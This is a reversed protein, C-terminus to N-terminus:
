TWELCKCTSTTCINAHWLHYAKAWEDNFTAVLAALIKQWQLEIEGCLKSNDIEVIFVEHKGKKIVEVHEILMTIGLANDIRKSAEEFVGPRYRGQRRQGEIDVVEITIHFGALQLADIEQASLSTGRAVPWELPPRPPRMVLHPCVNWVHKVDSGCFWAWTDTNHVDWNCKGFFCPEVIGKSQMNVKKKSKGGGPLIGQCMFRSGPKCRRIAWMSDNIEVEIAQKQISPDEEERSQASQAQSSGGFSLKRAKRQRPVNHIVYEPRHSSNAEVEIVNSASKQQKTVTVNDGRVKPMRPLCTSQIADNVIRSNQTPSPTHFQRSAEKDRLKTISPGNGIYKGETYAMCKAQQLLTNGIDFVAADYLSIKQKYGENALWSAHRSESLNTRPVVEESHADLTLEKELLENVQSLIEEQQAYSVKYPPRNPPSSGPVLDIKHDDEGRSPLLEKPIEDAFCDKFSNLFMQQYKEDVSLSDPKSEQAFIMYAFLNSKMSKQLSAHSVIPITSGRDETHISIDRNGFKFSTTRKPYELKAALRHFWPASLIVDETSLPSIYFEEQDVYGQVHVCLKGILPTVPVQQGKFAGSAKLATGMEETQIALKQVLEVSIFNHASGPDFLILSNTDRVKGWAFCLQSAEKVEKTPYLIKTAQPAEKCQAQAKVPKQVHDLSGVQQSPLPPQLFALIRPNQMVKDKAHSALFQKMISARLAKWTKPAEGNARLSVWWQKASKQFHMAVHRLKSSDTFGENGFAADFQQIFALVKDTAGFTGDYTLFSINKGGEKFKKLKNSRKWAAYSRQHGRRQKEQSSYGISEDLSSSPSSSPSRNREKKKKSSKEERKSKCRHPSHPSRKRKTPTLSRQARRRRPAIDEMSEDQSKREEREKSPSGEHPAHAKNKSSPKGELLQKLEQYPNKKRLSDEKPLKVM